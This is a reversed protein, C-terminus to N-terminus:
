APPRSPSHPVAIRCSRCPCPSPEEQEVLSRVGVKRPRERNPHSPMRIFPPSGVGCAVHRTHRRMRRAPPNAKRPVACYVLRIVPEGVRMPQIPVPIMPAEIHPWRMAAPWRAVMKVRVRARASGRSARPAKQASVGHATAATESTIKVITPYGASTRSTTSPGSPTSAPAARPVTRTSMDVLSGASARSISAAARAWPTAVRSAGTEPPSMPARSARREMMAPPSASVNARTWGSKSSIPFVITCWPGDPAPWCVLITFWIRTAVPM